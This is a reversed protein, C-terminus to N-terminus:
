YYMVMGIITLAFSTPLIIRSTKQVKRSIQKHNRLGLFHMSTMEIATIFAFFYCTLFFIDILTLYPVKPMSSSIAFSFAIVTLITTVSIQAQSSLESPEIWLVTWSLIVMLLLPLFVKWIYFTPDRKIEIDFIVANIWENGAVHIKEVLATEGLVTWEVLASYADEDANIPNTMRPFFESIDGGSISPQIRIRLYQTDFPFTHLNYINSLEASSREYYRVTGDPFVRVTVDYASHPVVGNAFDFNPIWIQDPRYIQYRQQSNEPTFALRPDKWEATLYGVIKFTQEEENVMELNLVRFAISVPVKKGNIDPHILLADNKDIEKILAKSAANTPTTAAHDTQAIGLSSILLAIACIIHTIIRSRNM